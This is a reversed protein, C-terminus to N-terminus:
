VTGLHTDENLGQLMPLSALPAWGSAKSVWEWSCQPPPAKGEESM